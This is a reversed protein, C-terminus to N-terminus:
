KISNVEIYFVLDSKAPITPPSGAEGYALAYPIFLTAKTGVPFNMVGEDWGKIVEGKGITFKFPSGRDRSSDFKTGDMLTGVYHVQVKNGSMAIQGIDNLTIDTIILGSETKFNTKAVRASSCSMTTITLTIVSLILLCHVINAKLSFLTKM